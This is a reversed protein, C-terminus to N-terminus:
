WMKRPSFRMFSADVEVIPFHAAYEQLKDRSQVRHQYLSEHDGWGTVGIYIM